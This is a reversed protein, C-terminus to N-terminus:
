SYWEYKEPNKAMKADMGSQWFNTTSEILFGATMIHICISLLKLYNTLYM